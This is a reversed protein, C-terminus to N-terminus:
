DLGPCSCGSFSVVLARSHGHLASVNATVQLHCKVQDITLGDDRMLRLIEEPKAVAWKSPFFSLCDSNRMSFSLVISLCLPLFPVPNWPGIPGGLIEVAELFLSHLEFSWYRRIKKGLAPPAQLPRHRHSEAQPAVASNRFRDTGLRIRPVPNILAHSSLGIGPGFYDERPPPEVNKGKARSIREEIVRIGACSCFAARTGIPKRNQNPLTTIKHQEILPGDRCRIHM